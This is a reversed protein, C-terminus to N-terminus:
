VIIIGLAFAALKWSRVGVMRWRRLIRGRLAPPYGTFPSLPLTQLPEPRIDPDRTDSKASYTSLRLGATRGLRATKEWGRLRGGRGRLSATKLFRRWIGVLSITAMPPEAPLISARFDTMPFSGPSKPAATNTVM